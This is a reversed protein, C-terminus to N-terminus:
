FDVTKKGLFIYKMSVIIKAILLVVPKGIFYKENKIVIQGSGLLRGIRMEVMKHSNYRELIESESLGAESSHIERLLRIRRATISLNNFHFYCYGLSSYIVCNLFLISVSELNFELYNSIVIINLLILFFLGIFFSLIESKLVGISKFLYVFCLTFLISVIFSVLPIGIILYDIM